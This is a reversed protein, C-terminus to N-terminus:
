NLDGILKRLVYERTGGVVPRAEPDQVWCYNPQTKDKVYAYGTLSCMANLEREQRDLHERDERYDKAVTAVRSLFKETDYIM